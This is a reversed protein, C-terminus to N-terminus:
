RPPSQAPRPGRRWAPNGGGARRASPAVRPRVSPRWPSAPAAKRASPPTPPPGAPKPSVMPQSVRYPKLERCISQALASKLFGIVKAGRVKFHTELDASTYHEIVPYPAFDKLIQARSGPSLDTTILVFHLRGKRRWLADRGILLIGSRLVFPFLREVPPTPAADTMSPPYAFPLRSHLRLMEPLSDEWCPRANPVSARRPPGPRM